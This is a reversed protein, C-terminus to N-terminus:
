EFLLLYPVKNKTSPEVRLRPKNGWKGAQRLLDHEQARSWWVLFFKVQETIHLIKLDQFALKHHSNLAAIPLVCHPFQHGAPCGRSTLSFDLANAQYSLEM